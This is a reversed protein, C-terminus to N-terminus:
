LCKDIGKFKKNFALNIRYILEKNIVRCIDFLINIEKTFDDPQISAQRLDNSGNKGIIVWILYNSWGPGDCKEPNVAVIYEDKELKFM